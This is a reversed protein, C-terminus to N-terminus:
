KQISFDTQMDGKQVILDPKNQLSHYKCVDLPLFAWEFATNHLYKSVHFLRKRLISHLATIVIKHMPFM